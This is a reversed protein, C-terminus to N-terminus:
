GVKRYVRVAQRSVNPKNPVIEGRSLIVKAANVDRDLITGCNCNHSESLKKPVLQGCGSCLQSTNRPNVKIVKGDAKAAKYTLKRILDGWAADYISRAFTHNKVMNMIKLDEVIITHYEKALRSSVQHNHNQRVNFIKNYTRALNLRIKKRRNSGKKCRALARQRRRLKSQHHKAVKINPIHEGNSLTALHTIGVDIGIQKEPHNIKTIPVACDFCIYWGKLDRRFTCSKIEGQIPRTLHVKIGSGFGKFRIRKGDFKLGTFEAFGFSKWYHKGRYRPFGAKIGRKIRGFFGIFADDVRKLTWRQLNAPLNSFEPDQRLETLSKCQDRYSRGKGTKQYCGIREQLAANYLIRQSECIEELKRHQNKTLNLRYKFNLFQLSIDTDAMAFNSENNTLSPSASCM